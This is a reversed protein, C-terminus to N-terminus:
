KMLLEFHQLKQFLSQKKCGFCTCPMTIDVSHKNSMLRRSSKWHSHFVTCELCKKREWESSLTLLTAIASHLAHWNNQFEQLHKFLLPKKEAACRCRDYAMQAAAQPTKTQQNSPNVYLPWCQQPTAGM